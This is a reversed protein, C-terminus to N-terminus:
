VRKELCRFIKALRPIPFFIYHFKEFIVERDEEAIGIGTDIVRIVFFDELDKSEELRVTIRGGEPTFKIANSLLNTLVQQIKGQDQFVMPDEM